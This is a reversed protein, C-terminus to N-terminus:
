LKNDMSNLVDNISHTHRHVIVAPLYPRVCLRSGYYTLYANGEVTEHM